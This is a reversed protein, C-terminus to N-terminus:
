CNLEHLSPSDNIGESVASLFGQWGMHTVTLRILGCTPKEIILLKVSTVNTHEEPAALAGVAAAGSAVAEAAAEGSAGGGEAELAEEEETVAATGEIAM